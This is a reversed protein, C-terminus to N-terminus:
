LYEKQSILKLFNSISLKLVGYIGGITWGIARIFLIWFIYSTIRDGFKRNLRVSSYVYFELLIAIILIGLIALIPAFLGFFTLLFGLILLPPQLFMSPMTKTDRLVFSFHKTYLKIAYFGYEFQQRFFSCINDRHHHYVIADKCYIIKLGSKVISYCLDTDMGALLDNDFSLGVINRRTVLNVTPLRKCFKPMSQFRDQLEYGVARAFKNENNMTLVIGGSAGVEADKFYVVLNKLWRRDVVADGDVFGVLDTHIQSLVYNYAQPRTLDAKMVHLQPYTSFYKNLVDITGDNSFADVVYISLKSSPYDLELLSGLCKAITKNCNKTPIIVAVTLYDSVKMNESYM